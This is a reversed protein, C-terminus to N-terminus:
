FSLLLSRDLVLILGCDASLSHSESYESRILFKQGRDIKAKTWSISWCFRVM